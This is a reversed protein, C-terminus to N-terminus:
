VGFKKSMGYCGNFQHPNNENEICVSNLGILVTISKEKIKTYIAIFVFM